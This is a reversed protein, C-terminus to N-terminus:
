KEFFEKITDVVYKIQEETLEPFIPLAITQQALANAVPFEANVSDLYKFCEQQHFPVPYYVESGISNESLFARLEDRKEVHIVYQNYIHYNHHMDNIYVPKPLRVKNSDNFELEGVGEALGATIFYKNYLEANVRRGHHWDELHPFKVNLVAAQL